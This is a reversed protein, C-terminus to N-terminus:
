LSARGARRAFTGPKLSNAWAEESERTIITRGGAKVASIESRGLMNYVTSRSVGWKACFEAISIGGRRVVVEASM